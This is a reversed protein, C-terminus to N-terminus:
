PRPLIPKQHRFGVVTDDQVGAIGNPCMSPVFDPPLACSLFTPFPWSRPRRYPVVCPSCFSLALPVFLCVFLFVPARQYGRVCARLGPCARSPRSVIRVLVQCPTHVKVNELPYPCVLLSLGPCCYRMGGVIEHCERGVLNTSLVLSCVGCRRVTSRAGDMMCM